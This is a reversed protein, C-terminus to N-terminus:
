YKKTKILVSTKGNCKTHWCGNRLILVTKVGDKVSTIETMNHRELCQTLSGLKDAQLSAPSFINM